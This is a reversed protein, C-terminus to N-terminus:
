IILVVDAEIWGIKDAYQIKYWGQRVEKVTVNNAYAVPCLAQLGKDPGVFLQAEKKVVVGSQVGQRTYHIELMLGSIIIFFSLCSVIIKKSRLEKKRSFFIFLYWCVLFFIQLIILSILPMIDNLLIIITQWWAVNEPKGVILSIHEKNRAIALREQRTAGNEARSWYVLAQAYDGKYFYCNGMNYLVASGKKSVMEYSQLAGDYDKHAYQKNGRL